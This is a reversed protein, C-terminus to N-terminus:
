SSRKIGLMDQKIGVAVSWHWTAMNAQTLIKLFVYITVGGLSSCFKLMIVKTKFFDVALGFLVILYIGLLFQEKM